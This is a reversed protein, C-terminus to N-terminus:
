IIATKQHNHTQRRKFDASTLRHLDCCAARSATCRERLPACRTATAAGGQDPADTKTLSQAGARVYAPPSLRARPGPFDPRFKASMGRREPRRRRITSDRHDGRICGISRLRPAPYEPASHVRLPLSTRGPVWRPWSPFWRSVVVVVSAPLISSSAPQFRCRQLFMLCRVEGFRQRPVHRDVKDHEFDATELQIMTFCKRWVHRYHQINRRIM